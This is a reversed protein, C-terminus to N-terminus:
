ATSIHSPREGFIRQGQIVIEVGLLPVAWCFWSAVALQEPLTGVEAAQLLRFLARFTVFAFTVVYSRVMWERHQDVLGRRHPSALRQWARAGPTAPQDLLSASTTNM